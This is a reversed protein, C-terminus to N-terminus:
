KGKLQKGPTYLRLLLLAVASFSAVLFMSARIIACMSEEPLKPRFVFIEEEHSWPLEQEAQVGLAHDSLKGEELIRRIEANDAEMPESSSALWEKHNLPNTTGSM